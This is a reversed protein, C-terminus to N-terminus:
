QRRPRKTLPSSNAWLIVVAVEILINIQDDHWARTLSFNHSYLFVEDRFISSLSRNM